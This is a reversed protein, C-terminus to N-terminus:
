FFLDPNFQRTIRRLKKNPDFTLSQFTIEITPLECDQIEFVKRIKKPIEKLLIQQEEEISQKMDIPQNMDIQIKIETPSIQQARYERIFDSTSVIARRIYDAFVFQQARTKNRQGLFMDDERGQIKEIVRFHSGCSCLNPSITIIDNLQYRIMPTTKKVLDTIVARGPTGLPVPQENEDVVELYIIDENIHLNGEKCTQAIMGETGKYVEHIIVGFSEALFDKVKPTLVEAYSVLMKPTIQLSGERQNEALIKLMSPPGTLATPQMQNLKTIINDLTDLPSIYKIQFRGFNASFGPSFVRLIFAVTFKGRKPFPFRSFFTVRMDISEKKSVVEIGRNGSTGTSLGMMYKGYTRGFDRTKEVELCFKMCNEKTLGQTNYETFNDMMIQKNVMPLSSFDIFNKDSYLKRYFLSYKKAYVILDKIKKNQYAVIQETSWKKFRNRAKFFIIPIRFM